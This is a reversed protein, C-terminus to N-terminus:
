CVKDVDNAKVKLVSDDEVTTVLIEGILYLFVLLIFSLFFFFVLYSVQFLSVLMGTFYQFNLNRRVKVM